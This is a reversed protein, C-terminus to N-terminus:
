YQPNLSIGSTTRNAPPLGYTELIKNAKAIMQNVIALAEVSTKGKSEASVTFTAIDPEVQVKGAGTVSLTNESCCNITALSVVVLSTFVLISTKSIMDIIISFDDLLIIRQIQAVM